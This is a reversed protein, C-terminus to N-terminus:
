KTEKDENEANKREARFEDQITDLRRKQELMLEGVKKLYKETENM